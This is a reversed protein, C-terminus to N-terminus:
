VLDAPHDDAERDITDYWLIAGLLFWLAEVILFCEVAERDTQTMVVSMAWSKSSKLILVFDVTSLPCIINITQTSNLLDESYDDAERDTPTMVLHRRRGTSPAGACPLSLLASRLLYEVSGLQTCLAFRSLRSIRCDTTRRVRSPSTGCKRTGKRQLQAVHTLQLVTVASISSISCSAERQVGPCDTVGM